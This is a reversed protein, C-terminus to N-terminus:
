QRSALSQRRSRGDRRSPEEDCRAAIRDVPYTRRRAPGVQSDIGAVPITDATVTIEQEFIEQRVLRIDGLDYSQNLESVLVDFEAPFFGRFSTHITYEGPGFGQVLFRGDEGALVGSLTEGSDASNVVVTAFGIPSDNTVDLVRGSLIATGEQALSAVPLLLFILLMCLSMSQRLGEEVKAISCPQEIADEIRRTM